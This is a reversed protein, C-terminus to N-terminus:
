VASACSSACSGACGDGTGCAQPFQESGIETVVTLEVDFPDVGTPVEASPPLLVAPATM